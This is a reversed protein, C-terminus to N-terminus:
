EQADSDRSEYKYFGIKGKVASLRKLTSRHQKFVGDMIDTWDFKVGDRYSRFNVYQIPVQLSAQPAFILKAGRYARRMIEATDNVLDGIQAASPPLLGKQFNLNDEYPGGVQAVKSIHLGDETGEPPGLWFYESGNTLAYRVDRGFSSLSSNSSDVMGLQRLWGLRPTVHHRASNLTLPAVRFSHPNAKDSKLWGIRGAIRELLTREPFASSLWQLRRERLNMQSEVYFTKLEDGSLGLEVSLLVQVLADADAMLVVKTLFYQFFEEEQLVSVGLLSRGLQTPALRRLRVHRDSVSELLGMATAFNVVEELYESSPAQKHDVEDSSVTSQLFDVVETTYASPADAFPELTSVIRSLSYAGTTYGIYRSLSRALDAELEDRPRSNKM